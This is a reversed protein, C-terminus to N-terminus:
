GWAEIGRTRGEAGNSLTLLGAGAPEVTRLRDYRHVFASLSVSALPGLRGRYGVEGVEAVEAAFRPNNVVTFPPTGPVVLEADIRSPARVARSVAGWLVTEPTMTYSLRVSPLLEWDTYSNHEARVGAIAVLSPLVRM